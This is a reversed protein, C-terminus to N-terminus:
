AGVAEFLDKQAEHTVQQLRQRDKLLTGGELAEVVVKGLEGAVRQFLRGEFVKVRQGPRLAM